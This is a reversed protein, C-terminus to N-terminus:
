WHMDCYWHTTLRIPEAFDLCKFSCSLFSFFPASYNQLVRHNLTIELSALTRGTLCLQYDVKSYNGSSFIYLLHIGLMCTSPCPTWESFPTVICDKKCPPLCSRLSEPRTSDPCRCMELLCLFNFIYSNQSYRQISISASACQPLWVSSWFLKDNRWADAQTRLNCVREM